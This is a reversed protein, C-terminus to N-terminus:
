FAFNYILKCIERNLTQNFGNWFNTESVVVITLFTTPSKFLMQLVLVM